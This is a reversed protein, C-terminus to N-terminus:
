SWSCALVRVCLRVQNRLANLVSFACNKDKAAAIAQDRVCSAQGFCHSSSRLVQPYISEHILPEALLRLWLKLLNAPLHPSNMKADYSGKDFTAYLDDLEQKMVSISHM